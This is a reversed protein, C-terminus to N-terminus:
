SLDEQALAERLARTAYHFSVKAANETIGLADAIEAFPLEGDVRLTLV